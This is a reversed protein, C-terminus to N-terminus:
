VDAYEASPADILALSNPVTDTQREFHIAARALRPEQLEEFGMSARRIPGLFQSVGLQKGTTMMQQREPRVGLVECLPVRVGGQNISDSPSMGKLLYLFRGKRANPHNHFKPLGSRRDPGFDLIRQNQRYGEIWSPYESMLVSFMDRPVHMFIHTHLGRSAQKEMAWVYACFVEEQRCWRRFRDLLTQLRAFGITESFGDTPEWRVTFFATLPVNATESFAFANIANFVSHRSICNTSCPM